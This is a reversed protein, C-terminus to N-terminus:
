INLSQLEKSFMSKDLKLVFLTFLIFTINWIDNPESRQMVDYYDETTYIRKGNINTIIDGHSLNAYFATTNKYVINILAGTNELSALDNM